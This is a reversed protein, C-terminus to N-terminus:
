KDIPTKVLIHEEGNITINEPFNLFDNCESIDLKHEIFWLIITPIYKDDPVTTNEVNRISKISNGITRIIGVSKDDENIVSFIDFIGDKSLKIIKIKNNTFVIKNM